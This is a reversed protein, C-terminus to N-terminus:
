YIICFQSGMGPKYHQSIIVKLSTIMSFDASVM